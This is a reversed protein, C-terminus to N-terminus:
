RLISARQSRGLPGGALSECIAEFRIAYKEMHFNRLLYDPIHNSSEVVLHALFSQISLPYPGVRGLVQVGQLGVSSHKKLVPGTEAQGLM